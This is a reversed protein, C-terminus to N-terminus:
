RRLLVYVAGTGGDTPLASVFALVGRAIRGRSLWQGVREKLVPMNEKSHLGRGHVILVCRLGHLRSEEIFAEVEVRAQTQVLGHLDIHAQIAYEGRRLNRVLRRDIGDAVGEVYEDTSAIDFTGTGDVLDALEAYAEAEDDAKARHAPRGVELSAGLPGLRGRPDQPLPAVARMADDFLAEDPVNVPAPPALKPLAPPPPPLKLDAFPTHFGTPRKKAM